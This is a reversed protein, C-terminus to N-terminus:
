CSRKIYKLIFEINYVCDISTYIDSIAFCINFFTVFAFIIFTTKFKKLILNYLNLAYINTLYPQIKFYIILHKILLFNLFILFNIQLFCYWKIAFLNIIAIM